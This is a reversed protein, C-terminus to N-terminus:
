LEQPERGRGASASASAEAAAAAASEAAAEAEAEAEAETEAEELLAVLMDANALAFYVCAFLGTWWLTQLRGARFMKEQAAAAAANPDAAAAAAEASERPKMCYCGSDAEFFQHRLREAYAVLGPHADQIRQQHAKVGVDASGADSRSSGSSSSGSGVDAHVFTSVAAYVLADIYTPRATGLFFATGTTPRGPAAQCLSELAALAADVKAGVEGLKKLMSMTPKGRPVDSVPVGTYFFPNARLVHERYTGRLGEWFGAVKPEVSKRLAASYVAPDFHTLFVFAPFLCQQTLVEATTAAAAQSSPVADVGPEVTLRQLCATLGTNLDRNADVASASPASAAADKTTSSAAPAISLALEGLPADARTYRAGVFRLMAEVALASPDATPLGLAAPYRAFVTTASAPSTM